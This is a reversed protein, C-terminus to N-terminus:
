TEKSLLVSLKALLIWRNRERCLRVICRRSAEVMYAIMNCGKRYLNVSTIYLISERSFMIKLQGKSERLSM